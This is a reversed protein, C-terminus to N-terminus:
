RDHKVEKAFAKDGSLLSRQLAKLKAWVNEKVETKKTGATEASERIRGISDFPPHVFGMDIAAQHIRDVSSLRTIEIQVYDLNKHEQSIQVRLEKNQASLTIVTVRQWIYLCSLAIPALFIVLLKLRLNGAKRAALRNTRIRTQSM